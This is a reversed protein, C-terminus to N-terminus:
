SRFLVINEILLDDDIFKSNEVWIYIVKVSSLNIEDTPKIHFVVFLLCYMGVNLRFSCSKYKM